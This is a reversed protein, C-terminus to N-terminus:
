KMGSTYSKREEASCLNLNKQFVIHPTWTLAGRKGTREVPNQVTPPLQLCLGQELSHSLFWLPDVGEEEVVEGAWWCRCASEEEEEVEEMPDAGEEGM